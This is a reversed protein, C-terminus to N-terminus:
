SVTLPPRAGGSRAEQLRWAAVAWQASGSKCRGSGYVIKAYFTPKVLARKHDSESISVAIFLM